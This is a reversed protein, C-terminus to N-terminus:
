QTEDALSEGELRTTRAKCFERYREIAKFADVPDNSGSIDKVMDEMLNEELRTLERKTNM